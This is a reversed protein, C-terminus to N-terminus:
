RAGEASVARDYARGARLGYWPLAIGLVAYVLGPVAWQWGPAMPLLLALALSLLAVGAMIAYIGCELRTLLREGVDLGLGDARRLAHANLLVICLSMAFFGVAYIVYVARVEDSGALTLESPAWGLTFFAMAGSILVRLPFIYILVTAVLALSLLTITADELGFRRSFRRHAAWFMAVLAFGAIFAPVKRMAEALEDFTGPVHDFSVVLLTVAFAFAADVFCELRTPATGRQIFGDAGRESAASAPKGEESATGM